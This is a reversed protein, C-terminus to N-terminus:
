RLRSIGFNSTQEEQKVALTHCLLRRGLAMVGQSYCATAAAPFPFVSLVVLVEIRSGGISALLFIVIGIGLYGLAAWFEAIGAGECYEHSLISKTATLLFLSLVWLSPNGTWGAVSFSVCAIGLGIRSLLNVRALQCALLGVVILSSLATGGCLEWHTLGTLQSLTLVARMLLGCWVVTLGRLLWKM